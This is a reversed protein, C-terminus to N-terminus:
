CRYRMVMHIHHVNAVGHSRAPTPPLAAGVGYTCVSPKDFHFVRLIDFGGNSMVLVSGRLLPYQSDQFDRFLFHRVRYGLVNAQDEVSCRRYSSAGWVM